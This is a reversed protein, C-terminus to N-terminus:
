SILKSTRFYGLLPLLPLGLITFYDGKISEFLHAGYSELQYAGVSTMVEEGSKELYLTIFKEDLQRVKLEAQEVHSWLTEGGRVVCVSSHLFHIKGSLRRLHNAAEFLSEPKDFWESECTLIQDAGIIYAEPNRKSIAGAKAIALELAASDADQELEIAAQKIRQEDIRAPMCDIEIGANELIQRRAPSQSALIIKPDTIM